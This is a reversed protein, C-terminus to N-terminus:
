SVFLQEVVPMYTLNLFVAAASTIYYQYLKQIRTGLREFFSFCFLLLLFFLQPPVGPVWQEGM